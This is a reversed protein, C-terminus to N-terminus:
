SKENEIACFFVKNLAIRCTVPTTLRSPFIHLEFSMSLDQQISPRLRIKAVGVFMNYQQEPEGNIGNGNLLTTPKWNPSSLKEIIDDQSGGGFVALTPGQKHIIPHTMQVLLTVETM